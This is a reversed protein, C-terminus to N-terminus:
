DLSENDGGAEIAWDYSVTVDVVKIQSDTYTLSGTKINSPWSNYLTWLVQKSFDHSMSRIMSRTKYDNPDSLGGEPTWVRNRWDQIHTYLGWTDYFVLNIDDFIISKANKYKLSAGQVVETEISWSPLTCDKVYVLISDVVGGFLWTIDWTYNYMMLPASNAGSGVGNVIFGPM